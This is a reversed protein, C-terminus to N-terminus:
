TADTTASCAKPAPWRRCCRRPVAASAPSFLPEIFGTLIRADAELLLRNVRVPNGRTTTGLPVLIEDDFASHQLCRYKEVLQAGLMTRLEADTQPRHTGLANLLTIDARAVGAAELEALLVPLMRDNPTPRTIDSHVIVVKHGPKVKQALPPSGIPDRLAAHIAAAEDALGPVFRSEVIDTQDPLHVTLGNHGYALNVNM